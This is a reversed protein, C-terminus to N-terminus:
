RIEIDNDTVIKLKKEDFEVSKIVGKENHLRILKGDFKDSSNLVSEFGEICDNSHTTAFVQVNLKESLTFIIEWLKEQVSYHLGNEFEDILLYGNESNVLALIITLIRNIGDGMSQLPLPDSINSLKIIPKQENITYGIRETTPEIIKLAQIVYEEKDTLVTKDWLQSNVKREINSTRIFQLEEKDEHPPYKIIYPRELNFSHLSSRKGFKVVLGIRSSDIAKDIIDGNETNIKVVEPIFFRISVLGEPYIEGKFEIKENKGIYIANEKDYGPNRNTFLTSFTRTNEDIINKNEISEKFNEGREELQEFINDFDGKTAYIALAELVATKGTNNKGIILNVRGLSNIKLDKLNRFNKIMLSDLM